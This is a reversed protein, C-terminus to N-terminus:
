PTGRLQDYAYGVLRKLPNNRFRGAVEQTESVLAPTTVSTLGEKSFVSIIRPFYVPKYGRACLREFLDYDMATKFRTEFGGVDLILGRKMFVSQHGIRNRLMLSWCSPPYRRKPVMFEGDKAEVVDGVIWDPENNSTIYTAVDSLVTQDCLYDDANLYLVYAGKALNLGKNFADSIGNDPESIWRVGFFRKVVELTDDESAGDIVIHEVLGNINEQIAVSQLTTEVTNEANRCVTVVSILIGPEPSFGSRESDRLDKAETM